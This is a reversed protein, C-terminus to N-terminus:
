HCEQFTSSLNVPNSVDHQSLIFYCWVTGHWGYMIGDGCQENIIAKIAKGYHTIAEYTRYVNPEQLISEDFSRMPFTKQMDQLDTEALDPLAQQLKVATAPMLKAQGLLLQAAYTNTVGLKKALEDYSLGSAEKAQLVREVREAHATSFSRALRVSVVLLLLRFVFTIMLSLTTLDGLSSVSLSPRHHTPCFIFIKTQDLAMVLTLHTLQKWQEGMDRAKEIM